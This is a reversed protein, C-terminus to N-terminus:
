TNLVCTGAVTLTETSTKGRRTTVLILRGPRNGERGNRCLTTQQANEIGYLVVVGNGDIECGLNIMRIAPVNV